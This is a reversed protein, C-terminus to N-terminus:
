LSNVISVLECLVNASGVSSHITSNMEVKKYENLAQISFRWQEVMIKTLPFDSLDYLMLVAKDRNNFSKIYVGTCRVNRGYEVAIIRCAKPSFPSFSCSKGILKIPMAIGSLVKFPTKHESLCVAGNLLQDM